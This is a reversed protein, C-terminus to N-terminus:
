DELEVDREQGDDEEGQHEVHGVNDSEGIGVAVRLAPKGIAGAAHERAKRAKATDTAM